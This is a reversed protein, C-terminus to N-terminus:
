DLNIITTNDSVPSCVFNKNVPLIQVEGEYGSVLPDLMCNSLDTKGLIKTVGNIVRNSGVVSYSLTKHFKRTSGHVSGDKNICNRKLLHLVKKTPNDGVVVYDHGKPHAWIKIVSGKEINSIQMTLYM